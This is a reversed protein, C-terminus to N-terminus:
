LDLSDFFLKQSVYNTKLEEIDLAKNYFKLSGIYGNYSSILGAGTDLFGGSSTSLNVPRGDTWGGGVIWPTFQPYTKPGTDFLTCDAGQTVTSKDYYFSSTTLTKPVIFSPVQPAKGVPVGFVSSISAEKFLVANVYMKLSDNQVDFVIQLNVFQSTIDSFNVRGVQKKSSVVFKLIDTSDTRCNGDKVFGVSSTNYSQTPAIFFVSSQTGPKFIDNYPAVSINASVSSPEYYFSDTATDGSLYLVACLDNASSTYKDGSDTVTYSIAGTIGSLTQTSWTGSAQYAAETTVWAGPTDNTSSVTWVGTQGNASAACQDSGTGTGLTASVSTIYGGFNERPNLDTSGPNVLGQEYYMRPDRSFGMLMGRVNNSSRDAVVDSQDINLNTGGTNECGLLVRYYHSDVWKGSDSSLTFDFASTNFPHYMFSSPSQDEFLGPIYTWLDITAGQNSYLLDQFTISDPLKAYNGSDIVEFPYTNWTESLFTYNANKKKVGVVGNLYPLGLGKQFLLNPNTSVLQAKDEDGEVGCNLSKFNESAPSQVEGTAFSYIVKLGRTTIGTTLSLIPQGELQQGTAMSGIGTEPVELPTLVIKNAMGQQHVFKPIVPLIIGSVEGHDFVLNKQKGLEVSLNVSSLYSFDNIPIKGKQFYIDYGFLDPAKVAVEIQKKRKNIKGQFAANESKIQEVYNVYLASEPNYGSEAVKDLNKTISNVVENRQTELVQLFHDDEYYEKLTSSEDINNVDFITNVYNDLDKISYSTGRGGLNPSHDLKWRDKAPIFQLDEKTPVPSGDAYTRDQSDYYLGDVSLLYQGRKAKPPGYSLRFVPDLASASPDDGFIPILNPNEDRELLIEGINNIVGTVKEIYAAAAEVQAKQILFQGKTRAIQEESSLNSNSDVKIDGKDLYDAYDALCNKIAVFEDYVDQGAQYIAGAYGAIQGVTNAFDSMAGGPGGDGFISLKGTASDYELIGLTEHIKEFVDGMHNQANARGEALGAAMGGLIDGPLLSLLDKTLDTLCKPFGFAMDLGGGIPDSFVNPNFKTM